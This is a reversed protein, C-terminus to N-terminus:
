SQFTQEFVCRPTPAVTNNLKPHYVPTNKNRLRKKVTNVLYVRFMDWVLLSHPDLLCGHHKYFVYLWFTVLVEDIWGKTHVKLIVGPPLKEKSMTKHKFVLMPKLKTGDAFCALVVTFHAYAHETKEESM